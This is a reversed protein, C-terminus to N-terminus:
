TGWFHVGQWLRLVWVLFTLSRLSFSIRISFDRWGAESGPKCVEGAMRDGCAAESLGVEEVRFPLSRDGSPHPFLLALVGRVLVVDFLFCEGVGDVVNTGFVGHSLVTSDAPVELVPPVTM